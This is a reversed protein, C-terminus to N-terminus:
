ASIQQSSFVDLVQLLGKLLALIPDPLGNTFPCLTVFVKWAVILFTATFSQSIDQIPTRRLCDKRLTGRAIRM